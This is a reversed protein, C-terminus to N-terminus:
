PSSHRSSRLASLIRARHRRRGVASSIMLGTGVLAAPLAQIRDRGQRQQVAVLALMLLLPAGLSVFSLSLRKMLGVAGGDM